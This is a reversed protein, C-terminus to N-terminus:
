HNVQTAHGNLQKKSENIYQEVARIESLSYHPHFQEDMLEMFKVSCKLASDSDCNKKFIQGQDDYATAAMIHQDTRALGRTKLYDYHELLNEYSVLADNYDEKQYAYIAKQYHADMLLGAVKKNEPYKREMEKLTRLIEDSNVLDDLDLLSVSLITSQVQALAFHSEFDGPWRQHAKEAIRLAELIAKEALENNGQLAFYITEFEKLEICLEVVPWQASNEGGLKNLLRRADELHAKAGKFDNEWLLSNVVLIHAKIASVNLRGLEDERDTIERLGQLCKAKMAKSAKFDYDYESREQVESILSEVLNLARDRQAKTEDRAASLSLSAIVSGVTLTVM